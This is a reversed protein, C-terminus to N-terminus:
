AVLNYGFGKSTGRKVWLCCSVLNRLNLGYVEVKTLYKVCM